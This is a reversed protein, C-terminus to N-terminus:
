AVQSDDDYSMDLPQNKPLRITFRTTRNRPDNDLELTGNHQEIIGRSIGLGLGTGKGQEKTTFFPQFIKDKLAAPV